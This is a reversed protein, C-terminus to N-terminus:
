SHALGRLTSALRDLEAALADCAATAEAIQGARALDEIRLAAQRAATAYFVSTEGAIRHAAEGAATGDGRSLAERVAQLQAPYRGEFKTLLRVVFGMDDAFNRKLAPLDLIDASPDSPM